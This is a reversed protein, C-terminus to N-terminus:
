RGRQFETKPSIIGIGCTATLIILIDHTSNKACHQCMTAM